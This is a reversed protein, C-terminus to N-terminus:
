YLIKYQSSTTVLYIAMSCRELVNTAPISTVENIILTRMDTPMQSHMFVMGLYDVLASPTASLTGLTGTASLDVNFNYGGGSHEVGNVFSLRPIVTGTNELDFEPANITTGPIVYSPPFYNFVSAQDFPEEGLAAMGGSAINTYPYLESPQQSTAQLGRLINPVYLLPERLHGGAPFTPSSEVQDGTLTDAARAEPDLLIATLVARMDGRVGSGNNAFVNAVRAVYAPSPDGSVLHQILQRSMFPPINSDAFINDLAGKLDAEATQGAPLTTGNLLTKATEDHQKEVAVMHYNWNVASNFSTPTSGDPNAYTWGTYAKAFAEVQTETYPQIPNGNPDLVNSGDMHLESTGLTFLQMCERGFNENPIQGVPAVGSNVMNLYNGMQPSLTLDTMITRYNTFADNAMTNLYYPMAGNTTQPAVWLESLAFAIRQRLQDNGTVVENIWDSQTCLWTVNPCNTATLSPVTFLTTPQNFQEQLAALLGISEVHATTAATPGFTAQDLFRAAATSSAPPLTLNVTSSTSQTAGPSPNAVAVAIQTSANTTNTVTTQLHTLSV